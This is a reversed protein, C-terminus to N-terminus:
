LTNECMECVQLHASNLFTCTPCAVQPADMDVDMDVDMLMVMMDEEAEKEDTTLELVVTRDPVPEPRPPPAQPVPPLASSEGGGGRGRQLLGTFGVERAREGNRDPSTDRADDVALTLTCGHYLDLQLITASMDTLEVGNFFLRQDMPYVGAFEILTMKADRLTETIKILVETKAARRRKRGTATTAGVSAMDPAREITIDLEFNSCTQILWPVRCGTCVEFSNDLVLDGEVPFLEAIRAWMGRCVPVFLELSRDLKARPDVHLKGHECLLRTGDIARPRTASDPQNAWARWSEVFEGEVLVYDDPVPLFDDQLSPVRLLQTFEALERAAQERSDNLSAQMAAHVAACDPCVTETMRPLHVHPYLVALLAVQADSVAIRQPGPALKGHPCYLALAQENPDSVVRTRNVDAAWAKPAWAARPDGDFAAADWDDFASRGMRRQQHDHVVAAVCDRCPGSEHDLIVGVPQTYKHAAALAIRKVQGLVRPNLRHHQCQFATMDLPPMQRILPDLAFVQELYATPIYACPDDIHQPLSEAFITRRLKFSHEFDQVVQDIQAQSQRKKALYDDVEMQVALADLQLPEPVPPPHVVLEARTYFLLYAEKSGLPDPPDPMVTCKDDDLCLWPGDARLRVHAIYHGYDASAGKHMVMGTLVWAGPIAAMGVLQHPIRISHQNKKKTMTKPDFAFRSVQLCLVDGLKDVEMRRDVDQKCKCTACHVQNSDTMREAAFLSDLMGEVTNQLRAAPSLVLEHFRSPASRTATGCGQCETVYKSTGGLHMPQDFAPCQEEIVQLLLKGFEQADQQVGPNIELYQILERPAYTPLHGQQLFAFVRGLQALLLSTSAHQYVRTRFTVDSYLVQLLSNIYCTAGMNLLGVGVLENSETTAALLLAPDVHAGFKKLEREVFRAKADKRFWEALGLHLLCNPNQQCQRKNCPLKPGAMSGTSSSAAVASAPVEVFLRKAGQDSDAVITEDDDEDDSDKLVLVTRESEADFADKLELNDGLVVVPEEEDVPVKDEGAVTPNTAGEVWAAPPVCMRHLDPHARYVAALHEERLDEVTAVDELARWADAELKNRFAAAISPTEDRKAGAGAAGGRGRGRRATGGGRASTTTTTPEGRRRKADPFLSPNTAAPMIARRSFNPISPLPPPPSPSIRPGHTSRGAHLPPDQM